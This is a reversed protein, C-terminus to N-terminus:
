DLHTDTKKGHRLIKVDTEICRGTDLRVLATTGHIAEVIGGPCANITDWAVRDGTRIPAPTTM